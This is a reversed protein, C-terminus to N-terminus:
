VFTLVAFCVSLYIVHKGLEGFDPPGGVPTDRISFSVGFGRWRPLDSEESKEVEM